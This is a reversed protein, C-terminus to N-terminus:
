AVEAGLSTDADKESPEPQVVFGNLMELCGLGDRRAVLIQIAKQVLGGPARRFLM